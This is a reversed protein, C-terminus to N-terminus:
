EMTFLKIVVKRNKSKELDNILEGRGKLIFKEPELKLLNRNSILYLGIAKARRESLEINHDESGIDDAYGFVEIGAVEKDDHKNFFADLSELENPELEDSDFQFFVEMTYSKRQKIKKPAEESVVPAPRPKPKPPSKPQLDKLSRLRINIPFFNRNDWQPVPITREYPHYGKEELSINVTDGSPICVFFRGEPSTKIGERGEIFVTTPLGVETLSDTVYGEVFTIADAHLESDLSFKYIDMGGLGGEDPRDSAFYGTSGDASIFFGFEWYATNIPPGLNVPTGWADREDLFSVFIDQKGMGLHGTSSFYLTKGDNSIFPAEEDSSTNIQPGLNIPDSWHGDSDKTSKWIDIGGYGGKRDSAFYLTSGDCSISAQSEWKESNAYGVIPKVNKVKTDDLEAEWIDCYGYVQDRQCATFYMMRGDRVLTSMGEPTKSNLTGGLSASNRWKNNEYKSYFLDDDDRAADRRTYFLIAQDNTLYPFVEDKSSNIAPGLNEISTVKRFKSTDQSIYCARISGDIKTVFEKELAEDENANIGFINVSDKNSIKAESFAHITFDVLSSDQLSKYREFYHLADDIAGIKYYIEGLQYYLPRSYMSDMAMVEQYYEAAQEYENMMEYALGTGRYAATLNPDEKIAKKFWKIAKKPNNKLIALEAERYYSVAIPEQASLWQAFFFLSVITLFIKRDM